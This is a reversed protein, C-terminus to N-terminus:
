RLVYIKGEVMALRLPWAHDGPEAAENQTALVPGGHTGLCEVLRGELLPRLVLADAVPPPLTLAKAAYLRQVHDRVRQVLAGADGQYALALEDFRLKSAQILPEPNGRGLEVALSQLFELVTRQVAGSLTIPPADLFRWRPFTVPLELEKVHQSPTDYSRGESIAWDLAGLQRM